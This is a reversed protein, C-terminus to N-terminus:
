YMRLDSCIFKIKKADIYISVNFFSPLHSTFSPRYSQLQRPPRITKFRGQRSFMVFTWLTTKPSWLHFNRSITPVKFIDSPLTNVNKSSDKPARLNKEFHTGRKSVGTRFCFVDLIWLATQLQQLSTFLIKQTPIHCHIDVGLRIIM